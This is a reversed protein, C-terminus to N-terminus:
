SDLPLLELLTPIWALLLNKGALTPSSIRRLLQNPKDCSVIVMLYVAAIDLAWINAAVGGCANGKNRTFSKREPISSKTLEIL